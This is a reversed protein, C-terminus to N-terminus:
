WRVQFSVFDDLLKKIIICSNPTAKFWLLADDTFFLHSIALAHKGVKIGKIEEKEQLQLIKRSLIEMILIFLYPSLPDGQRLGVKPEFFETPEGNM